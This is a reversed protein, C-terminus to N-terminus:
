GAREVTATRASGFSAATSISAIAITPSPPQAHCRNRGDHQGGPLSRPHARPNWLNQVLQRPAGHDVVHEVGQGRRAHLLENDDGAVSGLRAPPPAGPGAPSTVAITSSRSASAAVRAM